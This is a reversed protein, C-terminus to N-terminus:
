APFIEDGNLLTTIANGTLIPPGMMNGMTREFQPDDVAYKSEIQYAYETPRSACGGALCAGLGLAAAHILRLPLFFRWNRNLMAMGSIRLKESQTCSSSPPVPLFVQAAKM